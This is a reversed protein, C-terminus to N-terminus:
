SWKGWDQGSMHDPLVKKKKENKLWTKNPHTHPPHPHPPTLFLIITGLRNKHSIVFKPTHVGLMNIPDLSSLYQELPNSRIWWALCGHDSRCSSLLGDIVIIQVYLFVPKVAKCLSRVPNSSKKLFFQLQVRDNHPEGESRFSCWALPRILSIHNTKTLGLQFTYKLVYNRILPVWLM